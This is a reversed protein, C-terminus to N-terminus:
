ILSIKIFYKQTTLHCTCGSHRAESFKGNQLRSRFIVCCYKSLKWFEDDLFYGILREKVTKGSNGLQIGIQLCM